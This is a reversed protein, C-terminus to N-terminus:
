KNKDEVIKSLLEEELVNYEPVLEIAKGCAPCYILGSEIEKGCSKCKM